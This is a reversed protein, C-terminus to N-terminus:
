EKLELYINGLADCPVVGTEGGYRFGLLGNATVNLALMGNINYVPVNRVRQGGSTPIGLDSWNSVFKDLNALISKFYPCNEKLDYFGKYTKGYVDFEVLNQETAVIAVPTLKSTGKTWEIYQVFGTYHNQEWNGMKLALGGYDAYSYTGMQQYDAYSNMQLVLGDAFYLDGKCRNEMEELAMDMVDDLEDKSVDDILFHIPPTFGLETLFKYEDLRTSFNFGHELYRYGRFSLLQKYEKPVKSGLLSQVASLPSVITPNYERAKELRTNKLCLEGRICALDVSYLKEIELLNLREFVMQVSTTIDVVSARGRTFAKVFKGKKYYVEIGWGNLKLSTLLAMTDPAKQKFTLYESSTLSKVKAISKMPFEDRLEKYEGTLAIEDGNTTEWVEKALPSNPALEKLIELARDYLADSVVLEPSVIPEGTEILSQQYTNNAQQLLEELENVRDLELEGMDFTEILNGLEITLNNM